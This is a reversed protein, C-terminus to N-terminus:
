PTLRSIHLAQLVQLRQRIGHPSPLNSQVVIWANGERRATIADPLAHLPVNVIGPHGPVPQAGPIATLTGGPEHADLLVAAQLLRGHLSYFTNICSTFAQGEINAPPSIREVTRGFEATLAPLGRQTLECAGPLPHDSIGHLRLSRSAHRYWTRVTRQASAAPGYRIVHGARDIALLPNAHVLRPHAHGEAVSHDQAELNTYPFPTGVPPIMVPPSTSALFFVAAEDGAPLGPQPKTLITSSGIRVASVGPGALVFGVTSGNRTTKPYNAGFLPRAATPYGGGTQCTGTADALRGRTSYIISTCWGSDGAQLDPAVAIRYSDGSVSRPPGLPTHTPGPAGPVEGTLPQSGRGSLSVVAAAASACIVLSVLLAAIPHARWRRRDRELTHDGGAPDRTLTSMLRAEVPDAHRADDLMAADPAPNAAALRTLLPDNNM